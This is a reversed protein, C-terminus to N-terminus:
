TFGKGMCSADLMIHDMRFSLLSFRAMIREARTSPFETLPLWEPWWPPPNGAQVRNWDRVLPTDPM